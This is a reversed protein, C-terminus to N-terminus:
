FPPTDLEPPTGVPLIETFNHLEPRWTRLVETGLYLRIEHDPHARAHATGKRGATLKSQGFLRGYRCGMCRVRYEEIIKRVEVDRHCRLCWLVDGPKHGDKRKKERTHFCSFLVMVYDPLKVPKETM